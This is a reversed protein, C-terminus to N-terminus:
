NIKKAISKTSINAPIIKNNKVKKELAKNRTVVLLYGFFCTALPRILLFGILDGLVFRSMVFTGVSPTFVIISVIFFLISFEENIKAHLISLVVLVVISIIAAPVFDNIGLLFGVGYFAVNVLHNFIPTILMLVIIVGIIVRKKMAWENDLKNLEASIFWCSLDKGTSM